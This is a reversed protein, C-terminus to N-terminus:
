DERCPLVLPLPVSTPVGGQERQSWWFHDRGARSWPYVGEDGGGLWSCLFHSTHTYCFCLTVLSRAGQAPGQTFGRM